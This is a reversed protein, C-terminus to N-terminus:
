YRRRNNNGRARGSGGRGGPRRNRPGRGAGRDAGGRRTGGARTKGKAVKLVQGALEKQNMGDIAAQAEDDDEMAVFGFGNSKGTKRDRMIRVSRVEGFAAFAECLADETTEVSLNGVYINM